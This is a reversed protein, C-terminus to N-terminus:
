SSYTMEGKAGVRLYRSLEVKSKFRVDYLLKLLKNINTSL